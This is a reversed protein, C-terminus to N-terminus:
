SGLVPTGSSHSLIREGMKIVLGVYPVRDEVTSSMSLSSWTVKKSLVKLPCGSGTDVESNSNTRSGYVAEEAGAKDM